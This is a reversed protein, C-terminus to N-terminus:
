ILTEADNMAGLFGAQLFVINGFNDVIFNPKRSLRQAIFEMCHVM